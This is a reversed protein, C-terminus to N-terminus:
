KRKRKEKKKRKGKKKRMKKRAGEKEGKKGKRKETEAPHPSNGERGAYTVAQLLKVLQSQM